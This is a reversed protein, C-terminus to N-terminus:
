LYEAFVLTSNAPAGERLIEYRPNTQLTLFWETDPDCLVVENEPPQAGLWNIWQAVTM